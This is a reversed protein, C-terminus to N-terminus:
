VHHAGAMSHLTGVHGVLFWAAARDAHQKPSDPAATAAFLKHKVGATRPQGSSAAGFAMGEWPM